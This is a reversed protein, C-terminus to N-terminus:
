GSGCGNCGSNTSSTRSSDTSSRRRYTLNSNQIKASFILISVLENLMGTVYSTCQGDDTMKYFAQAMKTCQVCISIDVNGFKQTVGFKGQRCYTCLIVKGKEIRDQVSNHLCKQCTARAMWDPLRSDPVYLDGCKKCEKEVTSEQPHICPAMSLLKDQHISFYEDLHRNLDSVKRDCIYCFSKNLKFHTSLHDNLELALDETKLDFAKDCENCSILTKSSVTRNKPNVLLKVKYSYYQFLSSFQLRHPKILPALGAGSFHSSISASDSLPWSKNCSCVFNFEEQQRKKRDFTLRITKVKPKTECELM